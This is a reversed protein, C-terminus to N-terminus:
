EDAADSTYLLCLPNLALLNARIALERLPNTVSGYVKLVIYIVLVFVIGGLSIILQFTLRKPGSAKPYATISLEDHTRRAAVYEDVGTIKRCWDSFKWWTRRLFIIASDLVSGDGPNYSSGGFGGVGSGGGEYSATRDKCTVAAGNGSATRNRIVVITSRSFYNQCLLSLLDQTAPSAKVIPPITTALAEVFADIEVEAENRIALEKSYMAALQFMLLVVVALAPVVAVIIVLWLPRSELRQMSERKKAAGTAVQETEM